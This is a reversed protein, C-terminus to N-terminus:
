ARTVILKKIYPARFNEYAQIQGIHKGAYSDRKPTAM